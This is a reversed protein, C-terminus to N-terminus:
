TVPAFLAATLWGAVRATKQLTSPDLGLEPTAVGFSDASEVPAKRPKPAPQKRVPPV